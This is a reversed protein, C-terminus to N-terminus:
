LVRRDQRSASIETLISKVYYLAMIEYWHRLLLTGYVPCIPCVPCFPFVPFFVISMSVQSELVSTYPLKRLEQSTKGGEYKVKRLLAQIAVTSVVEATAASILCAFVLMPPIIKPSLIKGEPPLSHISQTSHNDKSM